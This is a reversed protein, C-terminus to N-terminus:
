LAAFKKKGKTKLLFYFFVDLLLIMMLLPYSYLSPILSSLLSLVIVGFINACMSIFVAASQKIVTVETTWTLNPFYLNVFLGILSSLVSFALPILFLLILEQVNPKLAVALIAANSLITPVIVTLNVLVKSLFITATSIPSSKLIWLNKGELSISCCTSPYMGIIVCITVPLFTILVASTESFEPINLFKDKFVLLAVSGMTLLLPGMLYNSLYLTSSFVRKLEKKWLSVIPPTTKLSTLRYSSTTKINILKTNIKKFNRTIFWVFVAFVGITILLFWLLAGIDFDCIAKTYLDAVPYCRNMVTLLNSSIEGINNIFNPMQMAYVIILCSFALTLITSVIPTRKFKSSVFTITTSIITAITIPFLPILFLTLLFLLYFLVPASTIMCYAIMAPVMILLTFALNTGYLILIRSTVVTSIKIPLSLIIDYDRFVFLTNSSKYITTFLILISTVAMALNPLVRSDPVGWGILLSYSFSTSALIITVFIMLIFFCISKRKEKKNNTYRLHNLGFLNLIHIKLLPILKNM